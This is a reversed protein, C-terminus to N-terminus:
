GRRAYEAVKDDGEVTDDRGAGHRRGVHILSLGGPVHDVVQGTL